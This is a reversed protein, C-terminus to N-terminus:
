GAGEDGPEGEAGAGEDDPEGEVGAGEDDSEGGDDPEGEAGAGEDGPEGEVGAGEVGAGEDDPEVDTLDDPDVPLLSAGGSQPKPPTDAAMADEAGLHPLVHESLEFLGLGEVAAALM